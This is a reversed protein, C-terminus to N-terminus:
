KALTRYLVHFDITDIEAEPNFECEHVVLDRRVELTPRNVHTAQYLPRIAMHDIKSAHPSIKM